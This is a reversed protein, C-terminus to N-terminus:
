DKNYKNQRIQEEAQKIQKEKFQTIESFNRTLEKLKHDTQTANQKYTRYANTVYHSLAVTEELIEEFAERFIGQAVAYSYKATVGEKATTLVKALKQAKAKSLSRNRPRERMAKSSQKTEEEYVAGESPHEFGNQSRDFM